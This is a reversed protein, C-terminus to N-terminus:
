NIVMGEIKKLNTVTEKIANEYNTYDVDFFMNKIM